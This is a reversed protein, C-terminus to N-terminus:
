IIARWHASVRYFRSFATLFCFPSAIWCMKRQDSHSFIWRMCHSTDFNNTIKYEKAYKVTLVFAYIVDHNIM